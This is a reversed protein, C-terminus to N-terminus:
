ETPINGKKQKLWKSLYTLVTPGSLENNAMSPHCINTSFFIEKKTKGKLIIEGYNLKGKFFNSKIVVNYIGNKLKKKQNHTICFGWAKKYYSTIYPIANLQKPLSYLKKKLDALKYSRNVATSYGILHLNNKKFDCIKKGQPTLIYADTVKWELPIKWDFVKSGSKISKIKLKPNFKQIKKLTERVGDGTISRNFSWLSKAFNLM